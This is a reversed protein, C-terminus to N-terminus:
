SGLSRRIQALAQASERQQAAGLGPLYSRAVFHLNGQVRDAYEHIREAVRDATGVVSIDRVWSEFQADPKPQHQLVGDFGFKPAIETYKWTQYLIHERAAAWPDADDTVFTQLHV